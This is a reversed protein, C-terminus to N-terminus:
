NFLDMFGKGGGQQGQTDLITPHLPLGVTGGGVQRNIYSGFMIVLVLIVAVYIYHKDLNLKFPM